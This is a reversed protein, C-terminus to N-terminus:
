KRLMPLVVVLLVFVIVVSAAVTPWDISKLFNSM